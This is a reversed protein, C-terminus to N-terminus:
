NVTRVFFFDGAEHGAYKIPAYQPIKEVGQAAAANAVNESVARYLRQGEMIGTNSSLAALFAKAFVSHKGGGGDLVPVVGGSSLVLRARKTAM